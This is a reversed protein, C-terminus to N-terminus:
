HRLRHWHNSQEDLLIIRSKPKFRHSDSKNRDEKNQLFIPILNLILLNILSRWHYFILKRTITKNSRTRFYFNIFNINSKESNKVCTFLTRKLGNQYFVM